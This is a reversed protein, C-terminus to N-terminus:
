PCQLSSDYKKEDIRILQVAATADQNKSRQVYYKILEDNALDKPPVEWKKGISGAFEPGIEDVHKILNKIASIINCIETKDQDKQRLLGSLVSTHSHGTSLLKYLNQIKAGLERNTDFTEPIKDRYWLADRQSLLWSNDFSVISFALYDRSDQLEKLITEEYSIKINQDKSCQNIAVFLGVIGVILNLWWHERLFKIFNWESQKEEIKPDETM